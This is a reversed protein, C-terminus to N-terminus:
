YSEWLVHTRNGPPPHNKNTKPWYDRLPREFLLFYTFSTYQCHNRNWGGHNHIEALLSQEWQIMIIEFWENM